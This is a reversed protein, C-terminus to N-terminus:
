HIDIEIYVFKNIYSYLEELLDHGGIKINQNTWLYGTYESRVDSYDADVDGLLKKVFNEELQNKTKETASVWYRVSVQKGQLDDNFIEAIPERIDGIFLASDNEGKNGVRIFGKYIVQNM